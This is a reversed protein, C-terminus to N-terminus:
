RHAFAPPLRDGLRYKQRYKAQFGAAVREHGHHLLALGKSGDVGLPGAAVATIVRHSGREGQAGLVAHIEAAHTGAGGLHPHELPLRISPPQRHGVPEQVALFRIICAHRPSVAAREHLLLAIPLGVVRLGCQIHFRHPRHLAAFIHQTDVILAHRRQGGVGLRRGHRPFQRSRRVPQSLPPYSGM